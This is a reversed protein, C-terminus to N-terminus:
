EQAPVSPKRNVIELRWITGDVDTGARGTARLVCSATSSSEIDYSFKQGANNDFGLNTLNASYRGYEFFYSEQFSRLDGLTNKAEVSLSKKRFNPMSSLAIAALIGIITVIVLIEMLTYGHSKRKGGTGDGAPHRGRNFLAKM